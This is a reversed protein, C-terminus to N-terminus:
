QNIRDSLYKVFNHGIEDNKWYNLFHRQNHELIDKMNWYWDHIEDISMNAIRQIETYVMHIRKVEDPEDDYSEDIFGSFTKFGLKRLLTLAGPYAIIVFPQLNVIPKFAKETLSKHEGHVFTETCIYLYSNKYAEPHSDTTTRVATYHTGNESELTKPTQQCLEYISQQNLPWSFKSSFYAVRREDCQIPTLCSWDTKSLLGDSALKLLLAQRHDRPRRVKYIMHYKRKVERTALWNDIHLYQEKFNTYHFSTNAIVYPWNRVQIRQESPGFWNEYIEQANFSNIGFIINDAPISAKKLSEHILYYTDYEMYNEQGYDLFIIARGSQADRFATESMHKWFYEGNIKSGSSGTGIFYDMYPPIRIPYIYRKYKERALFISNEDLTLYHSYCRSTINSGSVSNPQRGLNNDFLLGALSQDTFGFEEEFFNHQKVKSSYLSHLYNILGYETYIANPLIMNSFINDYLLPLIYKGTM